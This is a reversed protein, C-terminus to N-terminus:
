LSYEKNQFNPLTTNSLTFYVINNSNHSHKYHSSKVSSHPATVHISNHRVHYYYCYNNNNNTIKKKLHHIKNIVVFNHFGMPLEFSILCGLHSKKAAILLVPHPTGGGVLRRCNSHRHKKWAIRPDVWCSLLQNTLSCM